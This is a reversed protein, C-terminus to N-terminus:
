GIQISNAGSSARAAKAVAVRAREKERGMGDVKKVRRDRIKKVGDVIVHKGAPKEAVVEEEKGWKRRKDKLEEPEPEGNRKRKNSATKEREEGMV